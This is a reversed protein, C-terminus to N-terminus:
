SIACASSRARLGQWSFTSAPKARSEKSAETEWLEHQKRTDLVERAIKTVTSLLCSKDDFDCLRHCPGEGQLQMLKTTLTVLEMHKPSLVSTASEMSVNWPAGNAEVKPDQHALVVALMPLHRSVKFGKSFDKAWHDLEYLRRTLGDVVDWDESETRPDLVLLVCTSRWQEVSVCAPIDEMFKEVPKWHLDIFRKRPNDAESEFETGESTQQRIPHTPSVGIFGPEISPGSENSLDSV